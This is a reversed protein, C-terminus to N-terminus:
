HSALAPLGKTPRRCRGVSFDEVRASVRIGAPHLVGGPYTTSGNVRILFQAMPGGARHEIPLSVTVTRSQSAVLTGHTLAGRSALVAYRWHGPFAPPATLTFTACRAGHELADSYVLAKASGGPAMFGEESTGELLWELHAPQRLRELKLLLAPDTESREADFGVSEVSVAPALLYQLAVAHSDDTEVARLNGSPAEPTLKVLVGGLPLPSLGLTSGIFSTSDISTNWFEATEWIPTFNSSLGLSNAFASVHAGAPVHRDIWSRGAADTGAGAGTVYKHLAYYTQMSCLALVGIGLVIAAPRATRARRGALMWALAVAFVAVQVLRLPSLHVLPLSITSAHGLLVRQYFIAAPYTFFDYLNAVPPWSVNEILLDIALAGALVSLGPRSTLAAAFVLAIPVAAYATYREDPGAPILSLLLCLLGLLCVVALAHRAGDRPRILTIMLWPLGIALAVLGTGAVSRSLFYEYRELLPVIAGIHPVGYEGTLTSLASPFLDLRAALYVAIGAGTVVSVLRHGRWLRSPLMRARARVPSGAMEWRLEQWLVALPFMPALAIMASRSFMALVIALMALAERRLSPRVIAAWVAFLSWAYTPYAASETLFSTSVVAWPVIAVLLSAFLSPLRGLGAGRALLFTPISASAFLLCQLVRDVEFAGPGRLALFPIALLIQDLRQLGRSFIASEFLVNPQEILLRAQHIYLSEDLQFTAVRLAFHSYVITAVAVITGLLIADLRWSPRSWTASGPAANAGHTSTSIPTPQPPM